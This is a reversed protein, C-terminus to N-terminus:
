SDQLRMRDDSVINQQQHIVPASRHEERSQLKVLVVRFIQPGALNSRFAVPENWTNHPNLSVSLSFSNVSFNDHLVCASCAALHGEHGFSVDAETYHTYSQAFSAVQLALLFCPQLVVSFCNLCPLALFHHKLPFMYATLAMWAHISCMQM